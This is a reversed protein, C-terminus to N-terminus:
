NSGVSIYLGIGLLPYILINSDVTTVCLEDCGAINSENAALQFSPSVLERPLKKTRNGACDTMTEASLRREMAPWEVGVLTLIVASSARNTVTALM